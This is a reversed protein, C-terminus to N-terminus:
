LNNLVKKFKQYIYQLDDDELYQHSGIYFSNKYLYRANKLKDHYKSKLFSYAPQDPIFSFLSRTEIGERELQRKLQNISISEDKLTIPYALYSIDSSYKPLRLIDSFESLLDNLKRVVEQRKSIIHHVHKLQTLAIVAEIETPRFNMGILNHTFRPDYPAKSHPCKGVSRRCVDCICMRGNSKYQRVLSFVEKDNTNIAGLQGAQINHAIYFSYVSFESFSGVRIGKYLTGHAQASDEVVLLGYKKAIKNIKDMDVPYGLLHVPIIISYDQPDDIKELHIKLMEPSLCFDDLKVDVYEPTFGQILIANSTAIYTLPTSIVKSKEKINYKKKLAFLGAILASTGSNLSVSYDTGIFKAWEKEFKHVKESESIRERELVGNIANKIEGTVRFEGVNIRRFNKEKLNM